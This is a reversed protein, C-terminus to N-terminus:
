EGDVVRSEAEIAEEQPPAPIPEGRRIGTEVILGVPANPDGVIKTRAGHREPDNVSALHKFADLKVKASKATGEKVTHAIEHINDHYYEARQRRAEEFADKFDSHKTFWSLITQKSPYGDMECIERMSYGESIMLCINGATIENYDIKVANMARGRGDHSIPLKNMDFGAPVLIKEGKENWVYVYRVKRESINKVKKGAALEKLQKDTLDQKWLLKGDKDHGQIFGNEDQSVIVAQKTSQKADSM